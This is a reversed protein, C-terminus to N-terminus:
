GENEKLLDSIKVDDDWQAVYFRDPCGRIRGFLIPDKVERIYAIEFADFCKREQAVELAELVEAPPVHEYASIDCFDLMEYSSFDKAQKRLKANFEDVAKQRVFRYHEYALALKRKKEKLAAVRGAARKFGLRDLQEVTVTM